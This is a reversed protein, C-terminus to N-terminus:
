KKELIVAYFELGIGERDEETITGAPYGLFKELPVPGAADVTWPRCMDLYEDIACLRFPEGLHHFMGEFQDWRPTTRSPDKTEFTMFLKSGPAAWGHLDRCFRRIEEESLFVAVANAGLATKRDEGLFERAQASELLAKASRLDAELYLVDPNGELLARAHAVTAPDKDSYLVRAGPAAGHVHDSTPLGSGFDVFRTFGEGALSSAFQRLSERLMRVWKRTSPLLSFMHEAARRDAEFNRTGGLTYDYIRAASPTSPDLGPIDNTAM